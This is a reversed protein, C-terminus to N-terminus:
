QADVVGRENRWQAYAEVDPKIFTYALMVVGADDAIGVVGLFDPIVDIPMICYLVAALAIIISKKPSKTYEGAISARIMSIFVPINKFEEGVKPLRALWDEAERCAKEVAGDEKMLDEAKAKLKEFLAAVKEQREQSDM